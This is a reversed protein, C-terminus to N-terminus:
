LTPAEKLVILAHASIIQKRFDSLTKTNFPTWVHLTVYVAVTMDRRPIEVLYSQRVTYCQGLFM